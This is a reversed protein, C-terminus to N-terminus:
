CRETSQSLYRVFQTRGTLYSTMCLLASDVVGFTLCLREILIARDVTDFAATPDLQVVQRSIFFSVTNSDAHSKLWLCVLVQVRWFWGNMNVTEHIMLQIYLKDLMCSQEVNRALSDVAPLLLTLINKRDSFIRCMLLIKSKLLSTSAGRLGTESSTPCGTVLFGFTPINPRHNSQLIASHQYTPPPSKVSQLKACVTTNTVVTVEIMEQQLLIWSPNVSYM